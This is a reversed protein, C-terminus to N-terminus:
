ATHSEEEDNGWNYNELIKIEKFDKHFEGGQPHSIYGQKKDTWKFRGWNGVSFLIWLGGRFFRYVKFKGFLSDM